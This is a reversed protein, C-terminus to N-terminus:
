SNRRPKEAELRVDRNGEYFALAERVEDSASADTYLERKTNHEDTWSIKVLSSNM